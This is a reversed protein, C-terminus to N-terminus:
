LYIKSVSVDDERYLMVQGDGLNATCRVEEVKMLTIMMYNAGSIVRETLYM